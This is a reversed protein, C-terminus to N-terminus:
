CAVLIQFTATKTSVQSSWQELPARREGGPGSMIVNEWGVAGESATRKIWLHLECRGSECGRVNWLVGVRVLSQVLQVFNHFLGLGM